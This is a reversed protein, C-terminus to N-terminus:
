KMSTCFKNLLKSIYKQNRAQGRRSEYDLTASTESFREHLYKHHSIQGKIPRPGRPHCMPAACGM